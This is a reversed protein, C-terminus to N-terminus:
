STYKMSYYMHHCIISIYTEEVTVITSSTFRDRCLVLEKFSNTDMNTINNSTAYMKPLRRFLLVFLYNSYFRKVNEDVNVYSDSYHFKVASRAPVAGVQANAVHAMFHPCSLFNELSLLQVTAQRNLISQVVCAM